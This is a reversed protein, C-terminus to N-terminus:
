VAGDSPQEEAPRTKWRKHQWFYQEPAERVAAELACTHLETLRAVDADLDGTPHFDVPVLRMDYRQRRGRARLPVGVFLPAGARIAFFAPGKPTAALSGFFPVFVGGRHMDQDAVLAAVRGAALSRLIGGRARSMEIINMGMRARTNMLDREFLANSMGKAVADLPIGRAALSAGGVEWNGLHGSVLVVGRGQAVATEFADLGTFHCRELLEAPTVDALRFTAVAERGLHFWSARATARRWREPREPFARRLNEMVVSSRARLLTGVLRGLGGGLQLALGEPLARVLWSLARFARYELRFRRAESGSM